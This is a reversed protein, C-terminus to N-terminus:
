SGQMIHMMVPNKAEKTRKNNDTEFKVISYLEKRLDVIKRM